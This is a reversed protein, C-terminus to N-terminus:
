PIFKFTSLIQNFIKEHPEPNVTVDNNYVFIYNNDNNEIHWSSFKFAQLDKNPPIDIYNKKLFEKNNIVIKEENLFEYTKFGSGAPSSYYGGICNEEPSDVFIDFTVITNLTTDHSTLFERDVFSVGKCTTISSDRAIFNKPIKVEFGYDENRYTQWNSIDEQPSATAPCNKVKMWDKPVDCPTPFEKCQRTAPNQAPTILAICGKKEEKQSQEIWIIITVSSVIILLLIVLLLIQKQTMFNNNIKLVERFVEFYIWL